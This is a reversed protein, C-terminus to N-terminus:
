LGVLRLADIQHGVLTRVHNGAEHLSRWSLLWCLSVMWVIESSVVAPVYPIRSLWRFAWELVVVAAAIGVAAQWGLFAGCLAFMVSEAANVPPDSTMQRRAQQVLWGCIIGASVGLLGSLIGQTAVGLNWSWNSLFPEQVPTMLQLNAIAKPIPSAFPAPHLHPLFILLVLVLLTARAALSNRWPTWAPVFGDRHMLALAGLTLLMLLHFLYLGVLDWKTYWLIWVIGAFGYPTRVPLNTGGSLLEVFMLGCFLCAVIVEVVPYRASIPTRCARCRGRLLLWGLIPINDRREIPTHCHPCMSPPDSLSLGRPWRYVVVNLFSGICAGVAFVFAGTVFSMLHINAAEIGSLDAIESSM